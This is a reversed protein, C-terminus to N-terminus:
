TSADALSLLPFGAWQYITYPSPIYITSVFLYVLCPAAQLPYGSPGMSLKYNAESKKPWAAKRRQLKPPCVDFDSVIKEM